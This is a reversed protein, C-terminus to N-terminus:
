IIGMIATRYRPLMRCLLDDTKKQELELQRTRQAVLDEMNDSYKTMMSVIQDVLNVQGGKNMKKWISQVVEFSPRSQPGDEWCFKMLDVLQASDEDVRAPVSPRFPPQESKKVREICPRYYSPNSRVLPKSTQKLKRLGYRSIKCTWRGDLLVKFSTLSGHFKIPSKHLYTM